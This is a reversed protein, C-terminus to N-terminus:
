EQADSQQIVELGVTGMGPKRLCLQGFGHLDGPLRDVRDFIPHKNWRGDESQLKGGREVDRNM